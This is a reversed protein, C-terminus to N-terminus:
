NSNNTKNMDDNEDKNLDINDNDDKTTHQQCTNLWFLL